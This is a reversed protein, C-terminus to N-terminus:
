ESQIQRTNRIHTAAAGLQASRTPKEAVVITAAPKGERTLELTVPDGACAGGWAAFLMSWAIFWM